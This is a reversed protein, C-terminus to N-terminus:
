ERRPPSSQIISLDRERVHVPPQVKSLDVPLAHIVNARSNIVFASPSKIYSVHGVRLRNGPEVWIPKYDWRTSSAPSAFGSSTQYDGYWVHDGADFSRAQTNARSLTFDSTMQLEGTVFRGRVQITNTKLSYENWTLLVPAEGGPDLVQLHFAIDGNADSEPRVPADIAEKADGTIRDYFFLRYGFQRRPRVQPNFTTEVFRDPSALLVTTAKKGPTRAIVTHAWLNAHLIDYPPNGTKLGWGLGPKVQKVTGLTMTLGNFKAPLVLDSFGFMVDEASLATVGMRWIPQNWTGALKWPSGNASVAILTKNLPQATLTFPTTGVEPKRGVCQFTLFVRHNAADAYALQGDSGGADYIPQEGPDGIPCSNSVEDRFYAAGCKACRRWHAQGHPVDNEGILLRYFVNATAEHPRVNPCFSPYDPNSYYGAQCYHCLRWSEEATHPAPPAATLMKYDRFLVPVHAGGFPCVGTGGQATPRILGRCVRCIRWGTEGTGQFKALPMQYAGVGEHHGGAPCRTGADEGRFITQCKACRHWGAELNPDSTASSILQYQASGADDHALQAPCATKDGEFLTGCNKCFQWGTSEAAGTSLLLTKYEGGGLSHKGNLNCVGEVRALQGCYSCYRWGAEGAGPHDSLPVILPLNATERHRFMRRGQPMACAMDIKAPDFELSPVEQFSQGCNTSRWVMAVSRAGPGFDNRYATAFWPPTPKGPPTMLARKTFAGTVYWVEGNGLYVLDHDSTYMAYLNPNPPTFTAPHPTFTSDNLAIWQVTGDIGPSREDTELLRGEGCQQTGPPVITSQTEGVTAGNTYPAFVFGSDDGLIFPPVPQGPGFRLCLVALLVVVAKRAQM